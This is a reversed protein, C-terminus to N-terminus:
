DMLFLRHYEDKSLHRRLLGALLDFITALESDSLRPILAALVAPEAVKQLFIELSHEDTPRDLGFCIAAAGKPDHYDQKKGNM